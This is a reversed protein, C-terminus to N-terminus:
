EQNRFRRWTQKFYCTWCGCGQPHPSSNFNELAKQQGAAYGEDFCTCPQEPCDCPPQPSTTM